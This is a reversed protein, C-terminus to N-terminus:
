VYKYRDVLCSLNSSALSPSARFSPLYGVLWPSPLFYYCGVVAVAVAAPNIGAPQRGRFGSILM